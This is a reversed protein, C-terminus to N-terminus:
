QREAKNPNYNESEKMENRLATTHMIRLIPRSALFLSGGLYCVMGVIETTSFFNFCSGAVFLIGILLDNVTTILRYRKRFYLKFKGMKIGLYNKDDFTDPM